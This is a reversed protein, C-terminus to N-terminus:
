TEPIASWYSSLVAPLDAISPSLVDHLKEFSPPTYMEEFLTSFTLLKGKVVEPSTGNTSGLIMQSLKQNSLKSKLIERFKDGVQPIFEKEYYDRNLEDIEDASPMSLPAPTVRTAPNAWFLEFFLSM